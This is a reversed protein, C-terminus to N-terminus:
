MGFSKGKGLERSGMLGMVERGEEAFEGILGRGSRQGSLGRCQQMLGKWFWPGRGEEQSDNSMNITDQTNLAEPSIDM